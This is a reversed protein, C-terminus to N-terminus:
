LKEIEQNVQQWDVLSGIILGRAHLHLDEAVKLSEKLDKIIEDVAILACQKATQFTMQDCIIEPISDFKTLICCKTQMYKKVLEDAREKPTM